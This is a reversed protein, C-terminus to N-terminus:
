GVTSSTTTGVCNETLGVREKSPSANKLWTTLMELVTGELCSLTIWIIKPVFHSRLYLLYICLSIV